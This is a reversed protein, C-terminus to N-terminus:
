KERRLFWEPNQNYNAFFSLTRDVWNQFVQSNWRIQFSNGYFHVYIDYGLNCKAHHTAWLCSIRNWNWLFIWILQSFALQWRIVNFDLRLFIDKKRANQCLPIVVIYPWQPPLSVAFCLANWLKCKKSHWHIEGITSTGARARVNKGHLLIIM